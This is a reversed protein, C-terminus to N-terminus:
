AVLSNWSELFEIESAKKENDALVIVNVITTFIDIHEKDNLNHKKIMAWVTKLNPPNNRMESIKNQTLKSLTNSKGIGAILLDLEEMESDCIYGDANACCIGLAFATVIFQERRAVDALMANLQAKLKELELANKANAQNRGRAEAESESDDCYEAVGGAAAGVSAAIAAGLATVTGIPGAVPLAVVAAVGACAGGLVKWFSM